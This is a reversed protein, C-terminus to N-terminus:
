PNKQIHMWDFDYCRGLSMWGLSDWIEMFPKYEERAFRATRKTEKLTNASPFWDIAAGWSHVSYTSGGRKLRVNLCGGFRDLGLEKIREAGYFDYVQQLGEKVSEAVLKHCSFTRISTDLDWDLRLMYPSDVQVQNTGVKGYKAEFQSTSPNRCPTDIIYPLEDPRPGMPIGTKLSLLRRRADETDPGYFADLLLPIKNDIAEKQIVAAVWRDSSSKGRFNWTIFKSATRISIPGFIGDVSITPDVREKLIAQAQKVAEISPKM